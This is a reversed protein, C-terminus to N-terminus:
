KVVRLLPRRSLGQSSTAEQLDDGALEKAAMADCLLKLEADGIRNLKMRVDLVAVSVLHASDRNGSAALASRCEELMVLVAVLQEDSNPVPDTEM